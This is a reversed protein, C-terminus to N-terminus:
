PRWDLIGLLARCVREVQDETLTLASPLNLGYPSLAYSVQNRERARQAEPRGAYAPLSSLPRFFPRSDIGLASLRAQLTDKDLGFSADLLVTVMWWTSRTGPAAHNLTLGPVHGLRARYWAFIADKRELLEPLRELQALGLAAQLASMKYKHAVEANQFARDGPRRGHDRLVQVRAHLADDDTVLLGGEGTTLTKSGHFSFVGLRGFTGALRGTHSSGIAEAADEVLALGHREALALLGPMDPMNGYLDVPLLARTRPTLCAEVAARDLCWTRADIDAFVPTAGVYDIPASSAIWTVDPVIVEDGPGIGLALLALHLGATCSPLAVAHRVGLYGAFAQEFRTQWAGAQEYWAHRTAEAVYAVEKDTIWPGAVPVREAPTAVANPKTSM